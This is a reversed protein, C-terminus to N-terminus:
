AEFDLSPTIFQVCHPATIFAPSFKQPLHPASSLVMDAFKM